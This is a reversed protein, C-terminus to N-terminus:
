QTREWRWAISVAGFATIASILTSLSLFGFLEPALFRLGMALESAMAYDVFFLISGYLTAQFFQAPRILGFTGLIGLVVLLALIGTSLLRLGHNFAGKKNGRYDGLAKKFLKRLDM